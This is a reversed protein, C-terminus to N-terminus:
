MRILKIGNKSNDGFNNIFMRCNTSKLKDVVLFETLPLCHWALFICKTINKPFEFEQFSKNYYRIRPYRSIYPKAFDFIQKHLEIAYILKVKSYIMLPLDAYGTGIDLLVDEKNLCLKSIVNRKYELDNIHFYFESPHQHLEIAKKGCFEMSKRIEAPSMEESARCMEDKIIRFYHNINM